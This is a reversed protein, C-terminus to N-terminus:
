ESTTLMTAYIPNLQYEVWIISGQDYTIQMTGMNGEWSLNTENTTEVGNMTIQYNLNVSLTGQFTILATGSGQLMGSLTNVDIAWNDGYSPGWYGSDNWVPEGVGLTESNTNNQFILYSENYCNYVGLDVNTIAELSAQITTNITPTIQYTGNFPLETPTCILTQPQISMLTLWTANYEGQITLNQNEPIGYTHLITSIQWMSTGNKFTFSPSLTSLLLTVTNNTSEQIGESLGFAFANASLSTQVNSEPFFRYSLFTFLAILIVAAVIATVTKKRSESM